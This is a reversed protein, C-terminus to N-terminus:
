MVDKLTYQPAYSGGRNSESSQSTAVVTASERDFGIGLAQPAGPEGEDQMEPKTIWHLIACAILADIKCTMCCLWAPEGNFMTLSIKVSLTSLMTIGTGITTRMVVRRLPLLLGQGGFHVMLLPFLFRLTLYLYSLVEVLLLPILAYMKIGIICVKADNVYAISYKMSLSAVITYPVFLAFCSLIYEPTKHRPNVPWSIIYAREILFLFGAMKSVVYLTLCLLITSDCLGHNEARIHLVVTLVFVFLFSTIYTLLLCSSAVTFAKHKAQLFRQWCFVAIIPLSAMSTVLSVVEGELLFQSKVVNSDSVVARIAVM